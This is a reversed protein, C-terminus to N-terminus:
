GNIILVGASTGIRDAGAMLLSRTLSYTRIGGSAKIKVKPSLHQRLTAIVEATTDTGSLGTANKVYNVESEECINCVRKLEDPTLLGAEVIMKMVKGRLHTARTMSLIDNKVYNWNASKVAAINIVADIEDAEEDAARKIEEVKSFTHSYGMPFGVVVALKIPSVEGLVQRAERAFYPPICVAHFQHKMAEQCLQRIDANNCDPRLLTHDIRRAVETMM